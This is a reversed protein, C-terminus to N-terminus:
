SKLIKKIASKSLIDRLFNNNEGLRKKYIYMYYLVGKIYSRTERSPISEILLFIDGQHNIQNLWKRLNGPGANYAALMKILSGKIHPESFLYNIYDQGLLLNKEPDFLYHKNRGRYKRDKSIFAATSPLLQMLGIAKARSKALPYFGSEKRIISLLLTEEVIFEFNSNILPFLAGYLNKGTEKRHLDALRFSLSPMNYNAAFVMMDLKLDEPCEEYLYRLERGAETWNGIQLLALSRRGGKKLKIWEFFKDSIKPLSFDIKIDQGKSELGIIGYFNNINETSIELYELAEKPKNLILLARQAWFAAGSKLVEPANNLDALTKFFIASLEYRKSRWAALGGSWYASYATKPSKSIATRATVIAKDDYGFIFYAHSIEGRLHAEESKTLYNTFKKKSLIDLAGTPHKKRISKRVLLAVYATQKPSKRGKWSEPITARFSQPKSLGVGNLYGKKPSKASKANKPKRKNSLWKIRTAAPHDNYYKLWNSLESYSSRWATPHLYKQSLVNGMLLKNAVKPILKNSKELNGIEQYYFIKRYLNEDKESLIKFPFKNSNYINKTESIVESISLFYFILLLLIDKKNKKM